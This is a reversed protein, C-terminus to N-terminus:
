DIDALASLIDTCLEDRENLADGADNVCRLMMEDYVAEDVTSWAEEDSLESLDTPLGLEGLIAFHRNDLEMM